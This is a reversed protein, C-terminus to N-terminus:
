LSAGGGTVPTHDYRDYHEVNNDGCMVGIEYFDGSVMVEDFIFWSKALGLSGKTMHSPLESTTM